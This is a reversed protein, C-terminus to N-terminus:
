TRGQPALGSAEAIERIAPSATSPVSRMRLMELVAPAARIETEYSGTLYLYRDHPLNGLNGAVLIWVLASQMAAGVRGQQNVAAIALSLMIVALAALPLPYYIIRFDRMMVIDEHRSAMFALVSGLYWLTKLIPTAKLDPSERTGSAVRWGFWGTAILLLLWPLGGFTSSM